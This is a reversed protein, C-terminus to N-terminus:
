LIIRTFAISGVCIKRMTYWCEAHSAMVKVLMKSSLFLNVNERMSHQTGFKISLPAFLRLQFLHVFFFYVNRTEDQNWLIQKYLVTVLFNGDRASAVFRVYKGRLSIDIFRVATGYQVPLLWKIRNETAGTRKVASGVVVASVPWLACDASAHCIPTVCWSSTLTVHWMGTTTLLPQTRRTVDQRGSLNVGEPVMVDFDGRAVGEM